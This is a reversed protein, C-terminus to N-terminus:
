LDPRPMSVPEIRDGKEMSADRGRIERLVWGNYAEGVRLRIAGRTAPDIFVAISEVGNAVTGILVLNVQEDPASPPPTPPASVEIPPPASWTPVVPRRSPSFIPRDLTTRLDNLPISWLPNGSPRASPEAEAAPRGRLLPAVVSTDPTTSDGLADADRPTAGDAASVGLFIAAIAIGTPRM